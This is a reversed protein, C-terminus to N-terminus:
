GSRPSVGAGAGHPQTAEGDQRTRRVVLHRRRQARTAARVENYFASPDFWSPFSSALRTPGLVTVAGSARADRWTVRGLFWSHLTRNDGEVVLDVDFGPDIQCATSRGGDFVLWARGAGAGLTRFEVTTRKQPAREHNTVQHLRWVLHPTDLQEDAPDGLMWRTAWRGLAWLIPELDRGAPTLVYDSASEGPRPRREVLGNHELLRLRQALLSRSIRPIGRHIENFRHSGIIIERLILPSWRDGVVENAMAIPCYDSYPM